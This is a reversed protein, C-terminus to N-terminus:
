KASFTKSERHVYFLPFNLSFQESFNKHVICVYWITLKLSDLKNRAIKKIRYVGSRFRVHQLHTQLIGRHAPRRKVLPRGAWKM